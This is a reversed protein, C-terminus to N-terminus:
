RNEHERILMRGNREEGSYARRTGEVQQQQVTDREARAGAATQRDLAAQIYRSTRAVSHLEISSADRSDRAHVSSDRTYVSLPNAVVSGRRGGRPPRLRARGLVISYPRARGLTTAPSAAERLSARETELCGGGTDRQEKRKRLILTELKLKRPRRAVREYGTSRVCM